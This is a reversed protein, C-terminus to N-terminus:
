IKKLKHVMEKGKFISKYELYDGVVRTDTEWERKVEGDISFKMKSTLVDGDVVVVGTVAHGPSHGPYNFEVGSKFSYKRSFAANNPYFVDVDWTDGDRSMEMTFPSGQSAKREEDLAGIADMFDAFGTTLEPCCQWKGLTAAM